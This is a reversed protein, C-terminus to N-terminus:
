TIQFDPEKIYIVLEVPCTIHVPVASLLSAATYFMAVASPPFINTADFRDVSAVIVTGFLQENYM